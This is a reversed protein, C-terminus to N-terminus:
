KSINKCPKKDFDRPAFAKITPVSHFAGHL